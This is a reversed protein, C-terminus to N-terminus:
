DAVRVARRVDSRRRNGPADSLRVVLHTRARGDDFLARGLRLTIRHSRGATLFATRSRVPIRRGPRPVVHGRIRATCDEDCRARLVLRRSGRTARVSSVRLRPARHDPLGGKFKAIALRAVGDVMVRGAAFFDGSPDIAVADVRGLLARRARDSGFPAAIVGSRAFGLDLEGAPTLRLVTPVTNPSTSNTTGAVVLAGRTDYGGDYFVSDVDREWAFIGSAAFSADRTGDLGYRAVLGRPGNSRVRGVVTPYGRSYVVVSEALNEAAPRDVISGGNGFSPDLELEPTYRAVLLYPGDGPAPGPTAGAVVVRGSADLTGALVDAGPRPNDVSMDLLTGDQGFRAIVGENPGLGQRRSGVVVYSGDPAVDVSAVASDHGPFKLEVLGDGGFTPDPRGTPLYRVIAWHSGESSEPPPHASGVVVPRDASDIAVDRPVFLGWATSPTVAFGGDGFRRVRTGDKSYQIVSWIGARADTESAPRPGAGIVTVRGDRHVAVGTASAGEDFGPNRETVLGGDGFSRDPDGPAASATVPAAICLGAATALLRKVSRYRPRPM